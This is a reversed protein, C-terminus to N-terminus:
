EKRRAGAYERQDGEIGGHLFIKQTLKRVERTQVGM